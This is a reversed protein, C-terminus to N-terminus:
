RNASLVEDRRVHPVIRATGKEEDVSSHVFFRNMLNVTISYSPCPEGRRRSSLPYAKTFIHRYGVRHCAKHWAPLEVERLSGRLLNAQRLLADRLNLDLGLPRRRLLTGAALSVRSRAAVRGLSRRKWPSQPPVKDGLVHAANRPTRRSAHPSLAGQPRIARRRCSRVPLIHPLGLLFVHHSAEM